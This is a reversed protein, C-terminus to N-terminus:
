PAPNFRVDALLDMERDLSRAIHDLAVHNLLAFLVGLALGVLLIKLVREVRGGQRANARTSQPAVPWGRLPSTLRLAPVPRHRTDPRAHDRFKRTLAEAPM